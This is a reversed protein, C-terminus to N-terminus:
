YEMASRVREQAIDLAAKRTNNNGESRKIILETNRIIKEKVLSFMREASGSEWEVYSSIVGGANAVIDPIILVGQNALLDEVKQKIPINAAEIIIKAKVQMYNKENIVFPRAGPVLVDAETSFLDEVKQKKVNGSYDILKKKQEKYRILDKVELGNENYLTATSDSIAVITAGEESLFKATFTGVNGFGEIAIKAKSVDIGRNKLAVLTSHAVGWGTSGLEHPLGNLESPKGTAAALTGIEDVFAAMEREGINMDPGAIYLSPVVEKIKKAFSRMATTATTGPPGKIGSKAGGFPLDALANKWTMARALGKVEDITIDPVFRIGGKGPGRATNDIVLIGEVKTKPDYTLIVREPGFEDM